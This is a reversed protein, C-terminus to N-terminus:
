RADTDTDTGLRAAANPAGRALRLAVDELAAHEVVRRVRAVSGAWM